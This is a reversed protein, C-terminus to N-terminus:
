ITTGMRSGTLYYRAMMNTIVLYQRVSLQGALQFGPSHGPSRGSRKTYGQLSNGRVGVELMCGSARILRGRRSWGTSLLRGAQLATSLLATTVPPSARPYTTGM